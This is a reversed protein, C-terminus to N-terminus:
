MAVWGSTMMVEKPSMIRTGPPLPDNKSEFALPASMRITYEGTSERLTARSLGSLRTTKMAIPNSVAARDVAMVTSRDAASPMSYKEMKQLWTEIKGAM